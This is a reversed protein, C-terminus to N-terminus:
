LSRCTSTDNIGKPERVRNTNPQENTEEGEKRTNEALILKREIDDLIAAIRKERAKAEEVTLVRSTKVIVIPM